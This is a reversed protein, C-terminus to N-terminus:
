NSTSHNNNNNQRKITQNLQLNQVSSTFINWGISLNPYCCGFKFFSIIVKRHHFLDNVSTCTSQVEKRFKLAGTKNLSSHVIPAPPCGIIAQACLSRGLPTGKEPKLYVFLILTESTLPYSLSPATM